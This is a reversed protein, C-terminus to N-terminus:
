REGDGTLATEIFLFHMRNHHGLSAQPLRDAPTILKDFLPIVPSVLDIASALPCILPSSDQM